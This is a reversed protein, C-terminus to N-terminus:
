KKPEIAARVQIGPNMSLDSKKAVALIFNTVKYIMSKAVMLPQDQKRKKRKIRDRFWFKFELKSVWSGIEIRAYHRAVYYQYDKNLPLKDKAKDKLPLAKLTKISHIKSILMSKSKTTAPKPKSLAFSNMRKGSLLKPIQCKNRSNQM